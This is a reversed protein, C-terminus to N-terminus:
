HPPRRAVKSSKRTVIPGVRGHNPFRPAGEKILERVTQNETPFKAACPRLHRKLRDQYLTIGYNASKNENGM